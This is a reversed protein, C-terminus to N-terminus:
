KAGKDAVKELTSLKHRKHGANLDLVAELGKGLKESYYYAHPVDFALIVGHKGRYSSWAAKAGIRVKEGLAFGSAKKPWLDDLAQKVGVKKVQFELLKARYLQITKVLPGEVVDDRSSPTSRHSGIQVRTAYKGGTGDPTEVPTLYVEEGLKYKSGRCDVGFGGGSFELSSIGEEVEELLAQAWKQVTARSFFVALDRAVKVKPAAKGKAKAGGSARQSERQAIEGTAPNWFHTGPRVYGYDVEACAVTHRPFGSGPDVESVAVKKCTPCNRVKLGNFWEEAEKKEKQQRQWQELRWNVGRAFEKIPTGERVAEKAMEGQLGSAEKPIKLLAEGHSPSLIGRRIHEQVEPRLEMLRIRNAIYPQSKGIKKGLDAQTVKHHELYGQLGQAEELPNLDTRQLNEILRAEDVQDRTMERVQVPVAKLGALKAARLRRFGFVLNYPKVKPDLNGPGGPNPVALLPELIGHTRISEVLEKLEEDKLDRVNGQPSIEEVPVMRVEPEVKAKPEQKTELM